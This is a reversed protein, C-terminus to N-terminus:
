CQFRLAPVDHIPIREWRIAWAQITSRLVISGVARHKQPVLKIFDWRNLGNFYKLISTLLHLDWKWETEMEVDIAMEVNIAM